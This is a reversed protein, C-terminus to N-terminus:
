PAVRTTWITEQQYSSNIVRQFTEYQVTNQIDYQVTNQMDWHERSLTRDRLM